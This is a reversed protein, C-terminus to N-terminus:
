ISNQNDIQSLNKSFYSKILNKIYQTPKSRIGKLDALYWTEFTKNKTIPLGVLGCCKLNPNAIWSPLISVGLGASVLELISETLEIKIYNADTKHDISHNYESKIDHVYVKEQKIDTYDLYERKALHHEVSVVILLEDTLLHEFNLAPNNIKDNTLAIDIKGSLLFEIPNNSAKLVVELAMRHGANKLEKLLSPIYYYSTYFQTSMKVTGELQQKSDVLLRELDVVDDLIKEGRRLIKKEM